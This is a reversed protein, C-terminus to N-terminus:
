LVRLSTSLLELFKESVELALIARGEVHVPLLCTRSFSNQFCVDELASSVCKAILYSSCCRTFVVKHTGQSCSVVCSFASIIEKSVSCSWERDKSINLTQRSMTQPLRSQTARSLSPTQVLHGGSTGAEVFRHNLHQKVPSSFIFFFQAKTTNLILFMRGFPSHTM